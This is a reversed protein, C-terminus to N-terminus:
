TTLYNAYPRFNLSLCALQCKLLQDPTQNANATLLNIFNTQAADAIDPQYDVQSTPRSHTLQYAELWDDKDTGHLTKPYHTKQKLVM